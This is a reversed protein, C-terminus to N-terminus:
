RNKLHFKGVLDKLMQAQSSLQESAAASQEATASNTQVVSSIQDIGITVQEISGSQEMSAESIKNIIDVVERANEVVQLLMEANENVIITGEQVADITDQILVTTDKSAESSKVALNRVEDAVVAFGKGAVGARAAEVAANLALINTQFAIDEITKIINGIQESKKSIKGIAQIMKQMEENSKEVRSGAVSAKEHAQQASQANEKVQVSIENITAALQEVSSAQETAGQSLAQAGSAVQDSGSAVEDAAVNIEGLVSNLNGIIQKMSSEIKKFEGKYQAHLEIDLRDKSIENLVDSIEGIMEKLFAITNKFANAMQGIEDNSTTEISVDLNGQALSEAIKVVEHIPRLLKKLALVLVVLILVMAVVSLVFVIESVKTAANNVDKVSVATMAYWTEEGAKIPDYFKYMKVGNSDMNITYFAEKNQIGEKTGDIDKQATMFDFINQGIYETGASEYIITGDQKLIANHMSSYQQDDSKIKDFTKLDIDVVIVGLLVGNYYIPEAATIMKIGEYDYPETFVTTKKEKADTYYSKQSYDDYDGFPEIKGDKGAYLSYSKLESDIVYPEFLVGAGVINDLKTTASQITYYMYEEAKMFFPTMKAQPFVRSPYEIGKTREDLQQKDKSVEQVYSFIDNSVSEANDMIEQIQQANAGCLQELRAFSIQKISEKTIFGTVLILIVFIVVLVSGVILGLKTSLKNAQFRKMFILVGKFEIKSTINRETM